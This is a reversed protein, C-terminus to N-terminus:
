NWDKLAGPDVMYCYGLCSFLGVLVAFTPTGRAAARGVHEGITQATARSSPTCASYCYQLSPVSPRRHRCRADVRLYTALRAVNVKADARRRM